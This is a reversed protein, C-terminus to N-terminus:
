KAKVERIDGNGYDFAKVRVPPKRGKMRHGAALNRSKMQEGFTSHSIMGSVRVSISMGEYVRKSKSKCAPCPTVRPAKGIPYEGDFRKGCKQCEYSFLM